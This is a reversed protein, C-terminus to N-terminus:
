QATTSGFMALAHICPSATGGISVANVLVDIRGFAERGATVSEEVQSKATVDALAVVARRGVAEVAEATERAAADDLEVVVIDAGQEALMRATARAIGGGAGTIMAARGELSM